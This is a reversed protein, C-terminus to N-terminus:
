PRDQEPHGESGMFEPMTAHGASQIGDRRLLQLCTLLLIKLDLWLSRNDVYWVDLQFKQQWSLRNRGKVQAWGTIGPLAEHRRAEFANYRELYQPLLPRPGVWSMEGRLVNWWEPLEDLSTSRLWLGFPILRQADPLLRGSSDLGQTMTRFKHM